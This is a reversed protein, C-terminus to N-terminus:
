INKEYSVLHTNHLLYTYFILCSDLPKNVKIHMYIYMYIRKVSYYIGNLKKYMLKQICKLQM